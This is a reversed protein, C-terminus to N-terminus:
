IRVRWDLILLVPIIYLLYSFILEPLDHRTVYMNKVIASKNLEEIKKAIEDTSFNAFDYYAGGTTTAVDILGQRETEKISKTGIPYVKVDVSKSYASAEPVTIIEQGAVENDTTLIIIKTRDDGQAFSSACYALGDGILSTGRNGTSTGATLFQNIYNQSYQTSVNNGLASSIMDLVSLAYNYDTTLPLVTVPSKNFVSIGFREDKLRSVTEKMTDIIEKNLPNVSGSIDMCLMIDRNNFEEEHDKTRYLRSTLIASLIILAICVFKILLNYIRYRLMLKKYYKTNKVYKTNAVMIGKKFKSRKRWVFLLLFSALLAYTIIEPYMSKIEM